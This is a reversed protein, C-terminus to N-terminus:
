FFFFSSYIFSSMAPKACWAKSRELKTRGKSAKAANAKKAAAVICCGKDPVTYKYNRASPLLSVRVPLFPFVPPIRRIPCSNVPPSVPNQRNTVHEATVLAEQRQLRLIVARLILYLGKALAKKSALSLHTSFNCRFRAPRSRCIHSQHCPSRSLVCVGKSLFLNAVNSEIQLLIM